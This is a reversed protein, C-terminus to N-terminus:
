RMRLAVNSRMTPLNNLLPDGPCITSAGTDRHGTIRFLMRARSTDSNHAGRCDTEVNIM